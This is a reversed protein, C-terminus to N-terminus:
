RTSVYVRVLFSCSQAPYFSLFSFFLDSLPIFARVNLGYQFRPWLHDGAVSRVEGKRSLLDTSPGENTVSSDGQGRSPQDQSGRPYSRWPVWYLGLLRKPGGERGSRGSRRTRELVSDQPSVGLTIDRTRPTPGPSEYFCIVYMKHDCLFLNLTDMQGLSYSVTGKVSSM